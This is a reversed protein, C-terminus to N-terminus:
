YKYRGRTKLTNVQKTVSLPSPKAVWFIFWFIFICV